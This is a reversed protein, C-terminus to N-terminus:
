AKEGKEVKFLDTFLQRTEESLFTNLGKICVAKLNHQKERLMGILVGIALVHDRASNSRVRIHHVYEKLTEQQVYFDNFDGLGNQLKKLRSILNSIRDKPYLSLFFEMQYRLKKCDIRLDHFLQDEAQQHLLAGDRCINKYRKMISKGALQIVPLTANAPEPNEPVPEALFAEWWNFIEALEQSNLHKLLVTRERKRVKRLHQFFQEVDPQMDEPLLNRYEDHKLLYVDLDRTLNTIKGLQSFDAKARALVSPDMINKIQSLGSRTRRVAVRFDHLFESDLDQRMGDMNQHIVEMMHAFIQKGAEDARMDPRLGLNPKSNYGLPEHGMAQLMAPIDSASEKGQKKLKKAAKQFESEYGRLGHLTAEIPWEKELTGNKLKRSQIELRVVTKLDENRLDFKRATSAVDMLPLLARMELIPELHQRMSEEELDWVLRPMVPCSAALQQQGDLSQLSLNPRAFVMIQKRKYLRWDFTDYYKFRRREEPQEDIRFLKGLDAIVQEVETDPPLSFSLVDQNM